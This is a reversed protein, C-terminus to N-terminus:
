LYIRDITYMLNEFHSNLNNQLGDTTQVADNKHCSSLKVVTHREGTKKRQCEHKHTFYHQNYKSDLAPHTIRNYRNRLMAKEDVNINNQINLDEYVHLFYLYVYM